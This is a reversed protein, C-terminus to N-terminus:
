GQASQEAIKKILDVNVVPIDLNVVPPATNIAGTPFIQSSAPTTTVPAVGMALVTELMGRIYPINPQEKALEDVAKQLITNM